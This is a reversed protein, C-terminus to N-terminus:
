IRTREAEYVELTPHGETLEALASVFELSAPVAFHASLAERDAWHELFVVRQPDEADVHVSHLLCGPEARSRHVHALSVALVDDLRGPLARASGTVILV